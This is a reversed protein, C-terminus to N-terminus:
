QSGEVEPKMELVRDFFRKKLIIWGVVGFVVLLTLGIGSFLGTLILSDTKANEANAGLRNAEAIVGDIATECSTALSSASDYNGSRFALHAEALFNGAVELDGLLVGVDAGADQANAVAAFASNLRLEAMHLEQIAEFSDVGYCAPVVGAVLTLVVFCLAIVQWNRM